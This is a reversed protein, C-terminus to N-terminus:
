YKGFTNVCVHLRDLIYTGGPWIHAFKAMHDVQEIRGNVVLCSM